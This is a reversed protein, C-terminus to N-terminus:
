PAGTVGGTPHVAARGGDRRLVRLVAEPFLCVPTKRENSIMVVQKSVVFTCLFTFLRYAVPLNGEVQEGARRWVWGNASLCPLSISHELM